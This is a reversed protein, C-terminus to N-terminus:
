CLGQNNCRESTEFAPTVEELTVFAQARFRESRVASAGGYYMLIDEQILIRGMQLEKNDFNRFM